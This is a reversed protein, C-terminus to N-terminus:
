SDGDQQVDPAALAGSGPARQPLSGTGEGPRGSEGCPGQGFLACSTLGCVAFLCNQM